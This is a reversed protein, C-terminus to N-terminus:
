PQPSHLSDSDTPVSVVVSDDSLAWFGPALIGIFPLLFVLGGVLDLMGLPSVTKGVHGIGTRDGVRAVISHARNRKVKVTVTGTGVLQGDVYITAQPDTAMVTLSQRHSGAFSCAALLCTATVVAVASRLQTANQM